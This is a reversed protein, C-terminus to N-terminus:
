TCDMGLAPLAMAKELFSVCFKFHPTKKEKANPLMKTYKSLKVCQRTTIFLVASMHRQVHVRTQALRLAAEAWTEQIFPLAKFRSSTPLIKKM